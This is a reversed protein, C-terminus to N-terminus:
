EPFGLRTITEMALEMDYIVIGLDTTRFGPFLGAMAKDLHHAEIEYQRLYVERSILGKEILLVAIANSEVRIILWKDMLDRMAQLGPTPKGSPDLLAQSGVHWGALVARWKCLKEMAQNNM